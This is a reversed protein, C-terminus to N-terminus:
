DTNTKHQKQMIKKWQRRTHDMHFFIQIKVDKEEEEHILIKDQHNDTTNGILFNFILRRAEDTVSNCDKLINNNLYAQVKANREQEATNKIHVNSPLSHQTNIRYHGANGILLSQFTFSPQILSASAQPKMFKHVFTQDLVRKRKRILSQVQHKKGYDEIRAKIPVVQVPIDFQLDKGCDECEDDVLLTHGFLKLQSNQVFCRKSCYCLQGYHFKWNKQCDDCTFTKEDQGHVLVFTADKSCGRCPIPTAHSKSKNHLVTSDSSSPQGTQM